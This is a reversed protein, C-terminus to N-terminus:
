KNPSALIASWSGRRVHGLFYRQSFSLLLQPILQPWGQGLDSKEDRRFFHGLVPERGIEGVLPVAKSPKGKTQPLKTALAFQWWTL